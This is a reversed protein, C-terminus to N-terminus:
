DLEEVEAGLMEEPERTQEVEPQKKGYRILFDEYEEPVLRRISRIRVSEPGFNGDVVIESFGPCIRSGQPMFAIKWTTSLGFAPRTLEIHYKRTGSGSVLLNSDNLVRYDRITGEFICDSGSESGEFKESTSGNESGACAVLGCSILVMIYQKLLHKKKV